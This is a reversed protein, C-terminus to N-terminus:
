CLHAVYVLLPRQKVDPFLDNLDNIGKQSSVGTRLPLSDVHERSQWFFFDVHVM